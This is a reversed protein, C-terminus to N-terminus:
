PRAAAARAHMDELADTAQFYAGWEVLETNPLARVAQLTQGTTAAVRYDVADRTGLM